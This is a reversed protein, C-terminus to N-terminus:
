ASRLWNRLRLETINAQERLTEQLEAEPTNGLRRELEALIESASRGRACILFLRGFQQEYRTNADALRMKETDAAAMATSQEQTSWDLSRSTAVGQPKHEGIRPHTDFAQQWEEPSLSYWIRRAGTLLENEDSYPRRDALTAAWAPSGCCPLVAHVAAERDLANWHTLVPTVLTAPATGM